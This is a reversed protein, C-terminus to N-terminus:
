GYQKGNYWVHHKKINIEVEDHFLLSYPIEMEKFQNVGFLAGMDIAEM